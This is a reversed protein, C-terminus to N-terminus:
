PSGEGSPKAAAAILFGDEETDFGAPWRLRSWACGDNGWVMPWTAIFDSACDECDCAAMRTERDHFLSTGSYGCL